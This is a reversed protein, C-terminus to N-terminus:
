NSDNYRTTVSCFSFGTMASQGRTNSLVAIIKNASVPVVRLAPFMAQLDSAFQEGIWLSAEVATVIVDVEMRGREEATRQEMLTRLTDRLNAATQCNLGNEDRWDLVINKMAKPTEALDMEVRDSFSRPVIAHSPESSYPNNTLCILNKPSSFEGRSM